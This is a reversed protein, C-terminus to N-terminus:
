GFVTDLSNTAANYFQYVVSANGANVFGVRNGVYVSGGVGVGGAVQLAGTTTNTAATTGALALTNQYTPAGTGNSVLVTGTTGPGAFGTTGPSVQYVLQGATGGAINTATTASGAGLSSLSAWQPVSGTSALVYGSTTAIGLMTTAGASTQYPMSGGLGGALNTATTANGASLGGIASWTPATGNSTLIYGNTGISLFTTTGTASQYPVAGAAGGIINTSSTATRAFTATNANLALTATNATLALTATNANLALTATNANLALTATNANLALTATGTLNGVFTTATVVGGAYINGGVYLNNGIGVGGTVILAGSLTSVSSVTSTISIANNTTAGRGTVSELTSNNWITIAGTSTTITVVTDTGALISFQSSYQGITATTIVQSGNIYSTSAVYLSGGIGVGGAVQLAGSATSTAATTQLVKVATEIVSLVHKGVTTGPLTLGTSTTATGGVWFEITKNPSGTAINLNGGQVYLYGDHPASINFDPYSFGSNAIGLDVYYNTDSGDNATLIFDSSAYTGSNINQNNIQLYSNVNGVTNIPTDPLVFPQLEIGVTLKGSSQLNVNGSVGVGGPVVLAGTVSSTSTETSTLLIKNLKLDGFEGDFHGPTTEYGNVLFELYKEDVAFGLFFDKATAAVDDYYHGLIGIDTNDNVTWPAPNAKHLEILSDTYVTNTTLVYTATGTFTVTDGFVAPGYTNFTGRSNLAGGVNLNKAIGMGGALVVAGTNTSSSETTNSFFFTSTTTTTLGQIGQAGTAGTAGRPGQGGQVSNELAIYDIWTRHSPSGSSVHYIRLTVNGSSIYPAADIIALALQYWGVSGSYSTM